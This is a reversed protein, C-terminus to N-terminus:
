MKYFFYLQLKIKFLIVAGNQRYKGTSSFNGPVRPWSNGKPPGAVENERLTLNGFANAPPRQFDHSGYSAHSGNRTPFHEREHNQSQTPPNMSYGSSNQSSTDQRLNFVLIKITFNNSTFLYQSKNNQMSTSKSNKFGQGLGQVFTTKRPNKFIHDQKPPVGQLRETLLGGQNASFNIPFRHSLKILPKNRFSIIFIIGEDIKKSQRWTGAKIIPPIHSQIPRAQVHNVTHNVPCHNIESRHIQPKQFHRVEPHVRNQDPMNQVTRDPLSTVPNPVPISVHVSKPPRPRRCGFEGSLLSAVSNTDPNLRLKKILIHIFYTCFNLM